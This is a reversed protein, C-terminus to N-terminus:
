LCHWLNFNRFFNVYEMSNVGFLCLPPFEGPLSGFTATKEDGVSTSKKKERREETCHQCDQSFQNQLQCGTTGRCGRPSHLVIAPEAFAQPSTVYHPVSVMQAEKLGFTNSFNVWTISLYSHVFGINGIRTSIVKKGNLIIKPVFNQQKYLWQFITLFHFGSGFHSIFWEQKRDRAEEEFVSACFNAMCDYVFFLSPLEQLNQMLLLVPVHDNRNDCSQKTEIDIFWTCWEDVIPEEKRENSIQRSTGPVSGCSVNTVHSKPRQVFNEHLEQPSHEFTNRVSLAASRQAVTIQLPTIHKQVPDRRANSTCLAFGTKM